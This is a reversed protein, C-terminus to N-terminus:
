VLTLKAVGHSLNIATLVASTEGSDMGVTATEITKHSTAGALVDNVIVYFPPSRFKIAEIAWVRSCGNSDHGFVMIMM